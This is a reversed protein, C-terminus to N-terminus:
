ATCALGVQAALLLLQAQTLATCSAPVDALAPSPEMLMRGAPLQCGPPLLQQSSRALAEALM